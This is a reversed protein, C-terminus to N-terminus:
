QINEIGKRASAADKGSETNEPAGFRLVAATINDHGGQRNAFEVLQRALSLADAGNQSATQVVGAMAEPTPPVANETDETAKVFVMVKM